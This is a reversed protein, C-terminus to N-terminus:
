VWVLDNKQYKVDRHKQDYSTKQEMQAKSINEKVIRWIKPMNDMLAKAYGKPDDPREVPEGTIVEIPLRVECGYLVTFPTMKTSSQITTNYAVKLMHLLQDWDKQDENM